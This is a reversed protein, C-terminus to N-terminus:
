RYHSSLNSHKTHIAAPFDVELLRVVLQHIVELNRSAILGEFAYFVVYKSLM